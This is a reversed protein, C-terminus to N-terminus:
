ALMTIPKMLTPVKAVSKTEDASGFVLNRNGATVPMMCCNVLARGARSRQHLPAIAARALVRGSTWAGSPGLILIRGFASLWMEDRPVARGEHSIEPTSGMALGGCWSSNAGPAMMAPSDCRW